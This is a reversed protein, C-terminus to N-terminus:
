SLTRSHNLPRTLQSTYAAVTATSVFFYGMLIYSSAGFYNQLGFWGGYYLIGGVCIMNKVVEYILARPNRDMFETLAYVQAFIFLGYYMMNTLGISAVNGFLYSVILLLCFLQIWLYIIMGKPAPTDYKEFHYVDEIKYVPYKEVVDAPRWGLPMLWVRLKDKWSQTHWADQMLLWLHMFNIKIPNWTRVPRTVGYVAPIAPSEEQFTGFMRDWFIFIQGYNKDLYEPNIAHHVRHHAPTVIIYELWGMKNIHQTHYWFQAFLHLPAVVAIVQQPVGFLAAPIL